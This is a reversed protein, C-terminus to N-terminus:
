MYNNMTMGNHVSIFYGAHLVFCTDGLGFIILMELGLVSLAVMTLAINV